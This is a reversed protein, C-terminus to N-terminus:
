KNSITHTVSSVTSVISYTLLGAVAEEMNYLIHRRKTSMQQSNREPLYYLGYSLTQTWCSRHDLSGTPRCYAVESPVFCHTALLPPPVSSKTMYSQTESITARARRGSFYSVCVCVCLCTSRACWLVVMVTKGGRESGRQSGRESEGERRGRQHSIFIGGKM